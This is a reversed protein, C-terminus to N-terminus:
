PLRSGSQRCHHAENAVRSIPRAGLYHRDELAFFLYPNAFERIGMKSAVGRRLYLYCAQQQVMPSQIGGVDRVPM